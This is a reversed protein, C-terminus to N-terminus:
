KGNDNLKINAEKLLSHRWNGNGLYEVYTEKPPLKYVGSVKFLLLMRNGDYVSKIGYKQRYMKEDLMTAIDDPHNWEYINPLDKM